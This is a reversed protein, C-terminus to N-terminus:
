KSSFAQQDKHMVLDNGLGERNCHQGHSSVSIEAGVVRSSGSRGAAVPGSHGPRPPRNLGTWCSKSPLTWGTQQEKEDEVPHAVQWLLLERHPPHQQLPHGNRLADQM